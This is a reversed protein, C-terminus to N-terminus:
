RWNPQFESGFPNKLPVYIMFNQVIEPLDFYPLYKLRVIGNIKVFVEDLHERWLSYSRNRVRRKRIERSFISDTRNWWYRVTAHCIDIGREHLLDEVHRLSLPYRVYVMVTLRIIEPSSNFYRFPNTM